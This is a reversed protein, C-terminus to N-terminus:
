LSCCVLLNKTPPRTKRVSIVLLCLSGQMVTLVLGAVPRNCLILQGTVDWIVQMPLIMICLCVSSLDHVDPVIILGGKRWYGGVFTYESTNHEDAFYPDHVYGDRIHQLFQGSVNVSGTVDSDSDSDPDAAVAHLSPCRSIPDAVNCCGKRYEWQFDM